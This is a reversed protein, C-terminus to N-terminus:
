ELTKFINEFIYGVWNQMGRKHIGLWLDIEFAEAHCSNPWELPMIMHKFAFYYVDVATVCAHKKRTPSSDHM